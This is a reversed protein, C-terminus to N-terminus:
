YTYNFPKTEYAVKFVPAKCDALSAKTEQIRVSSPGLVVGPIM